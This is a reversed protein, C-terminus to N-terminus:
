RPRLAAGLAAALEAITYPKRLLAAAGADLVRQARGDVDHGSCLVIRAAPDIARLERFCREGDMGPMILDLLVLDIEAARARFLAAAEAGGEALLPRGGLSRIMAAAADRVFPEDDVVLVLGPRLSDDAPAPPAVAVAADKELPLHVVFTSGRGVASELSVTGGHARAIGYVMALGMGTGQGPRKTTFFPEFIRARLEEPVGCGTDAVSLEAWADAADDPLSAALEAPPAARRVELKLDGGDPMADRANIALNLAAQVMQGQDGRVVLPEDALEVILRVSKDLTRELLAAAERVTARLDFPENRLKGRRAFGLLGRTLEAAREAAGEITRAASEVTTGPAAELRLLEAYGLIATLLNNFDHAVGGALVGLAEMKQTHRLREEREAEETVDRAVLAADDPAGDARRSPSITLEVLTKKEGGSVVVRGTFSGGAALADLARRLEPTSDDPRLVSEASRGSVAGREHGTLSEFAPNAYRILGDPAVVAIGERAEQVAAALRRRDEEAERRATVDIGVLWVAWGPVPFRRSQKSWAVIRTSGDKRVLPREVDRFDTRADLTAKFGVREDATANVAALFDPAGVVEAAAYGTVRECEDNWMAARGEADFACVLAPMRELMLRLRSEEARLQAAERRRRAAAGAALLLGVALVSMTALILPRHRLYFGPPEGLVFSGPPLAASSLGFRRLQAYDFAYRVTPAVAVPITAPSRGDLIRLAIRAALEGHLRGGLLSGGVIGHGLAEEHMGFMPRRVRDRLMESLEWLDTFRGRADTLFPLYLIFGDGPPLAALEEVLEPVTKSRVFDIKLRSAFPALERLLERRLAQGTETDDVVVTAARAAPLLRLAAGVTGAADITEAVGTAWPRGAILAPQYDNVGCFVVAARPFLADRTALAFEAAANDTALVLDVRRGAYKFRLTEEFRLLTEATPHHKWDMYEIRVDLDPAARLVDLIGRELDDTWSYGAHYSHILLVQRHAPDEGRAFPAAFLLGLAVVLLRGATM